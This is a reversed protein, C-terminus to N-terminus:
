QINERLETFNIFSPCNDSGIKYSAPITNFAGDKELETNYRLCHYRNWCGMAFCKHDDHSLKQFTMLSLFNATNPFNQQFHEPIKGQCWLNNTKILTGDFMRIYFERGDMGKTRNMPRKVYPNAIYYSHGVIIRNPNPHEIKDKWFACQYCIQEKKMVSTITHDVYDDIYEKKGCLKCHYSFPSEDLCLVGENEKCM